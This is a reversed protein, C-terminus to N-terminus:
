LNNSLFDLIDKYITDGDEENLIEHRLGKYLKSNVDKYGLEKLFDVLELFKNESQIVPDDSGAILLIPLSTNQMKYGEKYFANDMLKYLNIFGNGTFIFGCLEDKNYNNVNDISKSLWSNEISKDKISIIM